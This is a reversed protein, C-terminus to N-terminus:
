NVHSTIDFRRDTLSGRSPRHQNQQTASIISMVAALAFIAQFWLFDQRALLLTCLLYIMDYCATGMYVLQWSGLRLGKESYREM